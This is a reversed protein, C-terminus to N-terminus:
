KRTTRASVTVGPDSEGDAYVVTVYYYYTTNSQLKNNVFTAAKSPKNTLQVFPGNASTSQYVHYGIANDVKSWKLQVAQHNLARAEIDTPQPYEPAEPLKILKLVGFRSTNQYSLGTPDNWIAISDRRGDGNADNNVQVDFGILTGNQPTIADLKIAAEVIYGGEILKVASQIKEQSAYGGYSQLNKFNIRYQGDDSQYAVTKGNNQDVFIEISDQEWVNESQDSLLSDTVVAYVYLHEEDWLTRFKATSGNSGEVWVNTDHEVAKDWVADLEGDIQPTGYLATAVKSGEILTLVGYGNSYAHQMNSPDSWSVMAGNGGHESSDDILTDTVRIDFRIKEGLQMTSSLPIVAEAIYGGSVEIVSDDTRPIIVQKIENQDLVFLEVQDGPRNTVDNVKVQVYLHNPDWLTKFQAHLSGSRETSLTPVTAWAIPDSVPTGQATNGEKVVIPLVPPILNKVAEVMGWYAYKAQYQKDFPLPADQRTGGRNHLWTGDDAIGWLTVNSIWGEPNYAPTSPDAHKGMEDLRVLEKFLEKFRYGQQLLIEEPIPDYSTGSTTYISVDLETIQNDFGAEAFKQISESIQQISPGSINIHTQHGVGHIPVGEDRLSTALDFLFDRKRPSHTNYDNIYLKADPDAAHAAEFAWKIFDTGTIRYWYSDRMGDPRGEDIVENVVDYYTAIGKYQTVVRTIYNKLRTEVLAKNEPTADLWNGNADQLMWDSGQSHWLLTHFRLTMDQDVAHQAIINANTINYADERPSISGPKMSNEAVISNFHKNLLESVRGTLRNPEVAAGIEFYDAYLDKLSELEYQIPPPAEIAGAHTLSFDDIYFSRPGGDNDSTEVYVNLIDPTITLSFPGSLRVWQSDTVRVNNTILSYTSEGSQVTMRLNTPDQGPAMKVWVSLDYKHNKHMKGMVNLLPGDYQGSATTLLSHSGGPTHNDANTVEIGGSGFRRVWSGQGGEFNETIGSQDLEEPEEPAGNPTVDVIKFEDLYVDATSTSSTASELYVFFGTTGSPVEYGNLEYTTWATSTVNKDGIIWHFSDGSSSTLRSTLHLTDTGEGLRVNFSIDYIRGAQMIDTLDKSLSSSRSERNTLKLSKSGESAMESTVAVQGSGGWALPGWGGTQDNEFSQYMVVDSAAEVQGAMGLGQPIFLVAALLIAFLSKGKKWM